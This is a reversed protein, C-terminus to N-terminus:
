LGEPSLDEMLWCVGSLAQWFSCSSDLSRSPTAYGLKVHLSAGALVIYFGLSNYTDDLNGTCDYYLTGRIFRLSMHAM